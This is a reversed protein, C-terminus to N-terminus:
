DYGSIISIIQLKPSLHAKKMFIALITLLSREIGIIKMIM